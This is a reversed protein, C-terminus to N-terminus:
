FPVEEEDDAGGSIPEKKDTSPADGRDGKSGSYKDKNRFFKDAEKQDAEVMWVAAIPTLTALVYLDAASHSKSIKWENSKEDKYRVQVSATHYPPRKNTGDNRFVSISVRGTNFTKVPRSM